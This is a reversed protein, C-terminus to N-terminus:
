TTGEQFTVILMMVDDDTVILHDLNGNLKGICRKNTFYVSFFEFTLRIKCAELEDLACYEPLTNFPWWNYSTFTIATVVLTPFPVYELSATNALVLSPPLHWCLVILQM